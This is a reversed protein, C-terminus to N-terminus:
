ASTFTPSLSITHFFSPSFFPLALPFTCQPSVVGCRHINLNIRLAAAKAAALGIKSKLGQFFAAHKFRFRTRNSANRHFALPMSTRRPRGTPRDAHQQRYSNIKRQAALHLSVNIGQPHTLHGNQQAHSSSGFREHTISLDFVLSRSGAQDRM